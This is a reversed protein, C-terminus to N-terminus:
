QPATENDAVRAEIPPPYDPTLPQHVEFDYYVGDEIPQGIADKAGPVLDCVAQALVHATSHRLVHLGDPEDATVPEGKGERGSVFSLDVLEGDFRAVIATPPLVSGIPEGEPLAVRHGDPLEIQPM